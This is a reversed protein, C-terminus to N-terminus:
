YPFQEDGITATERKLCDRILHSHYCAKARQQLLRLHIRLTTQSPAIFILTKVHGKCFAYIFRLNGFDIEQTSYLSKM